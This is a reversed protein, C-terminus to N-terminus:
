FYTLNLYKITQLSPARGTGVTNTMAPKVRLRMNVGAGCTVGATLLTDDKCSKETLRQTRQTETSFIKIKNMKNIKDFDHNLSNECKM